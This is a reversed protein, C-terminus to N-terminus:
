SCSLLVVPFILKYLTGIDAIDIFIMKIYTKYTGTQELLTCRQKFTIKHMRAIESTGAYKCEVNTM